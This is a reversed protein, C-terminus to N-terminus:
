LRRAHRVVILVALADNPFDRYTWAHSVPAGQLRTDLGGLVPGVQVTLAFIKVPQEPSGFSFIKELICDPGDGRTRGSKLNRDPTRGSKLNRDPTRGKPDTGVKFKQEPTRGSKLNRDPTRGSKLNIEADPIVVGCIWLLLSFVAISLEMDIMAILNPYKQFRQSCGRSSCATLSPCATLVGNQSVM